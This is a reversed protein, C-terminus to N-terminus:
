VVSKRDEILLAIVNLLIQEEWGIKKAKYEGILSTMKTEVDYSKEEDLHFVYEKNSKLYDTLENIAEIHKILKNWLNNSVWLAFREYPHEMEKYILPQHATGPPIIVLDGKTMHYISGDLLYSVSGGDCYVAEYFSHSHLAVFDKGSSVDYNLQVHNYKIEVDNYLNESLSNLEVKYKKFNKGSDINKIYDVALDIQMQHYDKSKIKFNEM